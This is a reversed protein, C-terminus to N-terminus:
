LKYIKDIIRKTLMEGRQRAQEINFVKIESLKQNIMLKSEKFKEKKTEFCSNQMKSNMKQSAISLNQIKHIILNQDEGDLDKLWKKGETNNPDIKQPIIHEITWQSDLFHKYIEVWEIPEDLDRQWEEEVLFLLLKLLLKDRSYFDLSLIDNRIDNKDLKVETVSYDDDDNEVIEVFTDLDVKGKNKIINLAFKWLNKGYFGENHISLLSIYRFIKWISDKVESTIDDVFSKAKVETLNPFEVFELLIPILANSKGFIWNLCLASAKADGHTAISDLYIIKSLLKEINNVFDKLEQLSGFKSITDKSKDFANEPTIETKFANTLIVRLLEDRHKFKIQYFKEKQKKEREEEAVDIVNFFKIIKGEIEDSLSIIESENKDNLNIEKKKNLNNALLLKNKLKESLTLQKGKSNLNEFIFEANEKEDVGIFIVFIEALLEEWSNLDDITKIKDQFYKSIVEYNKKVNNDDSHQDKIYKELQHNKNRLKFVKENNKSGCFLSLFKEKSIEMDNADEKFKKEKTKFFYYRLIFLTTLRQQGDILYYDFDNSEKSGIIARQTILTGLFYGDSRYDQKENREKFESFDDLLQKVEKRTWKYDRQYSPIEYIYSREFIDKINSLQPQLTM